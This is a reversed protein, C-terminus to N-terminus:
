PLEVIVKITGISKNTEVNIIDIKSTGLCHSDWRHNWEIRCTEGSEVNRWKVNQPTLTEGDPFTVRYTLDVTEKFNGTVKFVLQIYDNFYNISSVTGSTGRKDNLTLVQVGPKNASVISFVILIVVGIAAAIALLKNRKKNAAEKEPAAALEEQEMPQPKAQNEQALWEKVEFCYERSGKSELYLEHNKCKLFKSITKSKQAVKAAEGSLIIRSISLVRQNQPVEGLKNCYYLRFVGNKSGVRTQWEGGTKYVGGSFVGGVMAGGVHIKEPEYHLYYDHDEQYKLIEGVLPGTKSVHLDSGRM